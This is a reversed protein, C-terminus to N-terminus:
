YLSSFINEDYKFIEFIIGISLGIWLSIMVWKHANQSAQRAAMINGSNALSAVQAAYVISVVGLPMCCLITVLIAEVLHTEIPQKIAPILQKRCYPCTNSIEPIQRGCNPCFIKKDMSQVSAAISQPSTQNETEDLKGLPIEHGCKPCFKAGAPVEQKCETCFM